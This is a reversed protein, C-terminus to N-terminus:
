GRSLVRVFAFLPIGIAMKLCATAGNVFLRLFLFGPALGSPLFYATYQTSAELVAAMTYIKKRVLADRWLLAAAADLFPISWPHAVCFGMIGADPDPAVDMGLKRNARVYREVTERGPEVGILYRSYLSAERELACGEARYKLTVDM